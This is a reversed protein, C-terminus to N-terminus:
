HVMRQMNRSRFNERIATAPASIARRLAAVHNEPIETSARARERHRRQTSLRAGIRNPPLTFLSCQLASQFAAIAADYKQLQTNLYGIFLVRGARISRNETVRQFAAIAKEHEGVDKYVLGPQVLRLPRAAAKGLGGAFGKQRRRIEAPEFTFHRSKIEGVRLGATSEACRRIAKHTPLGRNIMYAVGISNLRAAESNDADRAVADAVIPATAAVKQCRVRVSPCGLGLFVAIIAAFV